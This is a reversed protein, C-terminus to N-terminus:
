RYYLQRYSSFTAFNNTNRYDGTSYYRYCNPEDQSCLIAENEINVDELWYKSIDMIWYSASINPDQRQVEEIISYYLVAFKAKILSNKDQSGGTESSCCREDELIPNKYYSLRSPERCEIKTLLCDAFCVASNPNL